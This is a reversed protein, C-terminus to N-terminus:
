SAVPARLRPLIEEGYLRLFRDQDHGPGHFVLHTFGLDLYERIRAVHEDPDTSVIFRSAAQEIPLEDGLRQMEIPDHVSTKQEPTLALPAWFRTDQLAQEHDHDFSVKVEIMRDVDAGLGPDRKSLGEDLSPILTDTYLSPSKGSTTIWGDAIRGALRTAAPGSAGIYIPVREAPRDYITADKVSYFQGDFTVREDAWLAEILQISEKLRAFREKQEPWPIGLTVENLAEGTGVGLVVRGPFLSGLTGFVQAVVGPHYRLTPTLVSTGILVRETSAGLAGLWPMAAPAHGGVHQWPQLHDSTFVSDFGVREAQVSFRLLDRPDFQEASAKYGFRIPVTM